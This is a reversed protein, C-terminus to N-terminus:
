GSLVVDSLHEDELGESGLLGLRLPAGAGPVQDCVRKQQDPKSCCRLEPNDSFSSSNLAIEDKCRM